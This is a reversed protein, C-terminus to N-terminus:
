WIDNYFRGGLAFAADFDQKHIAAVEDATRGSTTLDEM